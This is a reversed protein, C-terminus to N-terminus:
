TVLIRAIREAFHFKAALLFSTLGIVLLTQLVIHHRYRATAVLHLLLSATLFLAFAWFFRLAWETLARTWDAGKETSTVVLPSPTISSPEPPEEADVPEPAVDAAPGAVGPVTVTIPLVVNAGQVWTVNEIVVAFGEEYTGATIPATLTFAFRGVGGPAVRQNGLVAPRHPASWDEALFASTRGPPDAVNLAAFHDGASTWTATGTNRFEVWATVSSGPLLTYSAASSAVFSGAYQLADDTASRVAPKTTPRAVARPATKEGTAKPPTVSALPTGFEQVLITTSRGNMPGQVVALGIDAYAPKLINSRHSASAMLARHASEATTFDMALNEGATRYHYGAEQVLVWFKKGSPNTHDFYGRALMDNAKRVAADTLKANMRLPALGTDTRAQNMLSFIRGTTLEAFFAESPYVSYLFGTMALKVLILVISYVKLSSPRLVLPHHDNGEHPLFYHRFYHYGREPVAILHRYVVAM